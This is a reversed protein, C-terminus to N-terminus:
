GRWFYSGVSSRPTGPSHTLLQYLLFVIGICICLILAILIYFGNKQPVSEETALFTPLYEDKLEGAFHFTFAEPSPKFSQFTQWPHIELTPGYVPMVLKIFAGQEYTSDAWDGKSTWKTPNERVWDDPSYSSFWKNMVGRGTEDNIVLWAGANMEANWLPGDPSCYFSKGVKRFSDLSKDMNYVTADTDLWLVGEYKPLTDQVVKVKRWYPPLDYEQSIFIHDYGYKECYRRNREVLKKYKDNLPRNDYQVIAWTM